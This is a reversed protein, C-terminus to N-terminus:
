TARLRRPRRISPPSLGAKEYFEIATRVAEDRTAVFVTETPPKQFWFVATIIGRLIASPTVHAAGVSATRQLTATLQLWDATFRRQSAPTIERMLTLDTIFFLKEGRKQAHHMLSELHGLVGHLAADSVRREPFVTVIIPWDSEDVQIGNFDRLAQPSM